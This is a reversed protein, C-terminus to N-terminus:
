RCQETEGKPNEYHLHTRSPGEHSENRKARAREGSSPPGRFIMVMMMNDDMMMDGYRDMTAPKNNNSYKRHLKM